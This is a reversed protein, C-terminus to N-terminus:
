EVVRLTSPIDMRRMRRVTFLPAISVAVIGLVVATWITTVSVSPLITVDPLTGPLLFRTIYRVIVQGLGIGIATGFAGIVVSEIVTNALVRRVPVGFAFMTANERAREDVSIASSNFAILLALLLVAGEIVRLIGLMQAMLDRISQAFAQVPEVVVEEQENVVLCVGFGDHVAHTVAVPQHLARGRGFRDLLDTDREVEARMGRRRADLVGQRGEVLGVGRELEEDVFAAPM